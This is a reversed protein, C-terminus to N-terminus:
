EEELQFRKIWNRFLDFQILVSEHFRGLVARHELEFLSRKHASQDSAGALLDPEPLSETQALATLIIQNEKIQALPWLKSDTVFGWLGHEDLLSATNPHNIFGNAALQLQSLTIEGAGGRGLSQYAASCLQRALFPHGGSLRAVFAVADDQYALEMQRGINRVMQICDDHSLAGLYMERFFQYFPNQHGQWRNVRNLTPDVGVVLLSLFGTEQVLGRLARAFSLYHTLDSESIPTDPTQFPVILEIEDILLGLRPEYGETEIRSMLERVSMTFRTALHRPDTDPSKELRPPEWVINELKVRLSHKWSTLIQTYLDALEISAQLDVYAVPFSTKDRLYQLLSSKGMKRLGFLALPRGEAMVELLEDAYVQRGFFNLRDAVPHRTDYLDRRRGLFPGLYRALIERENQQERGRQITADDIPIIQLGTARLTGIQMWANDAPTEDVVIFIVKISDDVYALAQGQIAIIAQHNLPEGPFIHTYIPQPFKKKWSPLAPVCTFAMVDKHTQCVFGATELFRQAENLLPHESRVQNCLIALGSKGEHTQLTALLVPETPRYQEGTRELLQTRCLTQLARELQDEVVPTELQELSAQLTELKTTSGVPIILLLLRELSTQKQWLSRYRRYGLGIPIWKVVGRRLFLIPPLGSYRSLTFLSATTGIFAVSIIGVALYTFNLEPPFLGSVDARLVSQGETAAYIFDSNDPDIALDNIGADAFGATQWMRGHDSSFVLAGDRNAAFIRNPRKPDAVITDYSGLIVREWMGGPERRFLGVATGAFLIERETGAAALTHVTDVTLGENFMQWQEEDAERSLIGNENTAVYMLRGDKADALAATVNYVSLDALPEWTIGGDPSIILWESLELAGDADAVWQRVSAVLGHNSTLSTVQSHKGLNAISLRWTEGADDSVYIALWSAAALVGDDLTLAPIYPAGLGRNIESWSTGSNESKYIGGGWTGAYLGEEKTQDFAINKVILGKEPLGQHLLVWNAGNDESRFIGQGTGIFLHDEQKVIGRIALGERALPGNRDQWDQGNFTEYFGATTGLYISDDDVLLAKTELFGDQRAEKVLEWHEGDDESRFLGENSGAYLTKGQDAIALASTLSRNKQQWTAGNDESKFIGENTGIYINNEYIPDLLITLVDISAPLGEDLPLWSLGGDESKLIGESGTGAYVINENVPALSYVFPLEGALLSDEALNAPKDPTMTWSEGGDISKFVGDQITGAYLVNGAEDAITLSFVTLSEIGQNKAQWTQGGDTSKYIGHADVVAYLTLHETPHPVLAM